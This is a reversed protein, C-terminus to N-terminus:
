ATSTTGPTVEKQAAAALSLMERHWPLSGKSTIGAEWLALSSRSTGALLTNIFAPEAM